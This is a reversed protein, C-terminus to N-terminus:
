VLCLCLLCWVISLSRHCASADVVLCCVVVFLLLCRVLLSCGRRVGSLLSCCVVLLSLLCIVRLVCCVVLLSCRAVFLAYRVVMFWVCCCVRCVLVCYVVFRDFLSCGFDRLLCVVVAFFCHRVDFWWCVVAM